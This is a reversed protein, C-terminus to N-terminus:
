DAVGAVTETILPAAKWVKLRPYDPVIEALITDILMMRAAESSLLEVIAASTSENAANPEAPPHARATRM